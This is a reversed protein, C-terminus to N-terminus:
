PAFREVAELSSKFCAEISAGRMYDGTLALGRTKEIEKSIAALLRHHFPSFACLGLKFHSYVYQGRLDKSIPIHANLAKEAKEILDEPSTNENIAAAAKKGSFTYRVTDLDNYGYCGANSLETTDDFVLARVHPTFIPRSYKVVALTVPNYTVKNLHAALDPFTHCVIGATVKAPTALFVGDFRHDAVGEPTKVRLGSVGDADMLLGEVPSNLHVPFHEQVDAMVRHMGGTLQDYKDLVMKVNSGFNGLYYQDPESGNMRIVIPRLFHRVFTDGFCASIPQHDMAESLRNFFPSNLYGNEPSRKVALAYKAFKLFDRLGVLKILNVIAKSKKESDITYIRGDVVTSSNIGFFEFPHDGMDSVFSRFLPYKRGINKGGIDIVQGNIQLSCARGGLMADAEFITPAYGKKELYYAAAIGSM